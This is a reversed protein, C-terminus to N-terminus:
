YLYFYKGTLVITKKPSNKGMSLSSRSSTIPKIIPGSSPINIDHTLVRCIWALAQEDPKEKNEVNEDKQDSELATQGCGRIHGTMGILSFDSTNNRFFGIIFMRKESPWGCCDRVNVFDGAKGVSEVDKKFRRGEFGKTGKDYSSLSPMDGFDGLCVIIDPQEDVIFKGLATFRDNDYEPAAHCDPIVLLNKKGKM